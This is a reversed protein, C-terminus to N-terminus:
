RVSSRNQLNLRSAHTNGKGLSGLAIGLLKDYHSLFYSDLVKEQEETM